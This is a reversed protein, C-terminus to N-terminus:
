AREGRALFLRRVLDGGGRAAGEFVPEDAECFAFGRGAGAAEFVRRMEAEDFGSRRVGHAGRCPPSAGRETGKCQLGRGHGRLHRHGRVTRRPRGSGTPATTLWVREAHGRGERALLRKTPPVTSLFGTGCAYDLLRGGARAGIWAVRDRVLGEM